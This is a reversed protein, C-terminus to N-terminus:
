NQNASTKKAPKYDLIIIVTILKLNLSYKHLGIVCITQYM